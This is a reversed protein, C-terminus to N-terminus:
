ATKDPLTEYRPLGDDFKLWPMAERTFVHGQPQFDAAEALSSIHLHVEGPYAESQYTLPSGCDGCFGRKVGRSSAFTRPAGTIFRLSGVPYGVYTTIPAGTARRCSECHCHGVWKPAVKIEFRVKGCLCRGSAQQPNPMM